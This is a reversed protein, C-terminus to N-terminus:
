PTWLVRWAPRCTCLCCVYAVSSLHCIHFVLCAPCLTFAVSVTLNHLCSVSSIISLFEVCPLAQRLDGAVVRLLAGVVGNLRKFCESLTM